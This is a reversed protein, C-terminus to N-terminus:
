CNYNSMAHMRGFPPQTCDCTSWRPVHAHCAVRQLLLAPQQV